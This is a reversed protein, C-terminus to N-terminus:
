RLKAYEPYGDWGITVGELAGAWAVSEDITWLPIVPLDRLIQESIRRHLAAPDAAGDAEAILEDVLPNSYGSRNLPGASGFAPQLHQSALPLAPELAGQIAGVYNRSRSLDGFAAATPHPTPVADIGLASEVQGVVADVWAADDGSGPFHIPLAGEWPSIEDADRWLQRARGPDHGLVDAGPIPGGSDRTVEPAPGTAPVALGDYLRDVILERDIALSLARRRLRGEDGTFRPQDVPIILSRMGFGPASARTDPFHEAVPATSPVDPLVDINGARLAAYAADASRHFVFTLGANDPVLDGGYNENPVMDIDRGQRWADLDDALRYPGNGVPRLGFGAPDNFAADPLPKFAISALLDAFTSMPRVLDVTFTLEGTRTLGALEAAADDGDMRDFGVIPELYNRQLRRNPGHAADNWARIYTDATVPSGDAFRRGDRITIDWSTFDDNPVISEADDLVTGGDPAHRTLGAFVQKMLIIQGLSGAESPYLPGEPNSLSTRIVRAGDASDPGAASRSGAPSCPALILALVMLVVPFATTGTVTHVRKIAPM